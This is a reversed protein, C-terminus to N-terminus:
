SQPIQGMKMGGYKSIRPHQKLLKKVDKVSGNWKM